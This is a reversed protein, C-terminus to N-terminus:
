LHEGHMIAWTPCIAIHEGHRHEYKCATTRPDGDVDTGSPECCCSNCVDHMRRCTYGMGPVFAVGVDGAVHKHNCPAYVPVRWHIDHIANFRDVVDFIVQDRHNKWLSAVLGVAGGIIIAAVVDLLM